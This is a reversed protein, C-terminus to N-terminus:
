VTRNLIERKDHSTYLSKKPARLALLFFSMGKTEKIEDNDYM